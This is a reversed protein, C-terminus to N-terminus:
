EKFIFATGRARTWADPPNDTTGGYEECFEDLTYAQGDHDMRREVGKALKRERKTELDDESDGEDEDDKKVIAGKNKRKKSVPEIVVKPPPPLPPADAEDEDSDLVNVPAFKRFLEFDDSTLRKQQKNSFLQLDGRILNLCDTAVNGKLDHLFKRHVIIDFVPQIKLRGQRCAELAKYLWRLKEKPKKPLVTDWDLSVYEDKRKEEEEKTVKRQRRVVEAEIRYTDNFKDNEEDDKSKKKPAGDGGWDGM